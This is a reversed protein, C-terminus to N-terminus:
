VTHINMVSLVKDHIEQFKVKVQEMTTIDGDGLIDCIDGFGYDSLISWAMDDDARSKLYSQIEKVFKEFEADTM